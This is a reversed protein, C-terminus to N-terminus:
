QERERESERMTWISYCRVRGDQWERLFYNGWKPDRKREMDRIFHVPVEAIM